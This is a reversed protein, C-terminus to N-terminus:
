LWNHIRITTGAPGSRVQVLDCLQNAMWLGRGKEDDRAPTTSGIMPDIIRGRDSVEYVLSDHEIWIRLVRRGSGHKVSNAAVEHVALALDASHAPSLGAALAHNTVDARLAALDERGFTRHWAAVEVPPLDAEFIATVHRLGGYLTSSRRNQDELLVPHSRQAETIVDPALAQVDYPCMLWLPTHPEVAVNLLAEHLQCETVEAPRRSPWIPEGIGRVPQGEAGLEAVFERWTPIIQAPNRGLFAMDVFRVRDAGTGMAARLLEIRAAIVAVMVPQGSGLGELIFPVTGALFQDEGSWLFAEHRFSDHAALTGVAVQHANDPDVPASSTGAGLPDSRDSQTM